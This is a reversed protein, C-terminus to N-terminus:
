IINYAIALVALPKEIMDLEEIESECSEKAEEAEKPLNEANKIVEPIKEEIVSILANVYNVFGDYINQANSELESTDLEIFPPTENWQTKLEKGLQQKMMIDDNISVQSQSFFAIMMGM